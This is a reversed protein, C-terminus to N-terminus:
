IHILSLDKSTFLVQEEYFTKNRNKDYGSCNALISEVYNDSNNKIKASLNVVYGSRNYLSTEMCDFDISVKSNLREQQAQASNSASLQNTTTTTSVESSKEPLKASPKKIQSILLIVGIM